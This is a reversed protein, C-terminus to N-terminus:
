KPFGIILHIDDKVIKTIFKKYLDPNRIRFRYYNGEENYKIPYFNHKNLWDLAEKITWSIIPFLISQIESM